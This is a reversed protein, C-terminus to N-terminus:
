AGSAGRALAKTAGGASAELSLESAGAVVRAEVEVAGSALRLARAELGLPTAPAAIWAVKKGASRPDQARVDLPGDADIIWFRESPDLVITKQQSSAVKIPDESVLAVRM